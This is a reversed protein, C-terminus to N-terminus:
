QVLCQKIAPITKLMAFLTEAKFPKVMYGNAGLNMAQRIDAENDSASLMIIPTKSHDAHARLQKLLEMGDLRPMAVDLLILLDRVGQSKLDAITAFAMEPNQESIFRNELGDKRVQRRTLFIEDVNDDIMLLTTENRSNM